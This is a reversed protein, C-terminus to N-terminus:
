STILDALVLSLSIVRFAGAFLGYEPKHIRSRQKRVMKAKKMIASTKEFAERSAREQKGDRASESLFQQACRALCFSRKIGVFQGKIRIIIQDQHIVGESRCGALNGMEGPANQIAAAIRNAIRQNFDPLHIVVTDISM